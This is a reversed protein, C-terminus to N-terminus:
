LSIIVASPSEALSSRRHLTSICFQQGQRWNREDIHWKNLRFFIRRGALFPWPVVVWTLDVCHEGHKTQKFRRRSFFSWRDRYQRWIPFLDFAQSLGYSTPKTAIQSVELLKIELVTQFVRYSCNIRKLPALRIHNYQRKNAVVLM